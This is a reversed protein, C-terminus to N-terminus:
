DSPGADPGDTTSPTSKPVRVGSPLSAVITPKMSLIGAAQPVTGLTDDRPSHRPVKAALTFIGRQLARTVARSEPHCLKKTTGRFHLVGIGKPMPTTGGRGARHPLM